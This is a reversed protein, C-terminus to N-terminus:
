SHAARWLEEIEPQDLASSAYGAHVVRGDKVVFWAPLDTGPLTTYDRGYALAESLVQLHRPRLGLLSKVLGTDSATQFAASLSGDEDVYIPFLVHNRPVYDRAFTLDTHTVGLLKIGEADFRPWAETLTKITVRATSGTLPRLFVVVTTGHALDVPLGFVPQLRLPPAPDGPSLM